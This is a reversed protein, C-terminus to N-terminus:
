RKLLSMCMKEYEDVTKDWLYKSLVHKKADGKHRDASKKQSLLLSLSSRLSERDGVSFTYGFSNMIELHGEIDSVLCCNGYSMAELLAVPSGEIEAPFIAMYANSLLEAKMQGDVYGVRLISRDQGIAKTLTDRFKRDDAFEGALVLIKDTKLSKYVEVLDFIGKERSLRGIYLIYSNRSLGYRKILDPPVYASQDVGNQLLTVEVRSIENFYKFLSESVVVVRDAFQGAFYDSLRLFFRVVSTWKNKKWEFSHVHAVTKLGAIKTSFAFLSAISHLHVVDVDSDLLVRITAVLSNSVKQYFPHKMSWLPKLHMGKYSVASNCFVNDCYVTVEHGRVVLRSGIEETFKEIGGGYPIGKVGIFAIKM